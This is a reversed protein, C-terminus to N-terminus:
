AGKDEGLVRGDGRLVREVFYRGAQTERSLARASLLGAALGGLAGSLGAWAFAAIDPPSPDILLVSTMTAVGALQAVMADRDGARAHFALGLLPVFGAASIALALGVLTRADIANAASTASGIATMAVLALRTAALRRSTLATEARMRYFADHGVAAACANLSAAALALGVAILGSALLGTLAAGLGALQPLGGILYEARASVDDRRLPAGQALGRTGCAERAQAPGDVRAGCIAVFGRASAAYVPEPLREPARGVAADALTLACAAITTAVLGGAVLTWGFAVLGARRTASADRTSVAPALAPALTSLGLGVGLATTAALGAADPRALRWSEILAAARDFAAADGVIPLPLASGGLLRAAQPLAFGALLVGAAVCASWVVGGVGGPGAILLIAAGIFFAAFPRGAGTFGVLADVATQYGALAVVGSSIAAVAVMGLRAESRPFRAALLETLSFAGTKRLLPGTLWALGAVGLLLGIAVGHTSSSGTLRAAFPTALGVVIAAEAFGAYAAPTARGAAYYFSVRMSHLLFGLAALALITFYPSVLAVLREPAGIRDLLAVLGYASVFACVAFAIRADLRARDEFNEERRANRM